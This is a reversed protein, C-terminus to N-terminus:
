IKELLIKGVLKIAEIAIQDEGPAKNKIMEKLSREIEQIIMEPLDESGQNLVGSKRKM